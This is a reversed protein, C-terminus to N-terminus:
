SAAAPAPLLEGVLEVFADRDDPRKAIAAVSSRLEEVDEAALRMRIALARLFGTRRESPEDNVAALWEATAYALRIDDPSLVDFDLESFPLPGDAIAAFAGSGRPRLALLEAVVRGREVEAKVLEGDSWMTAVLIEFIVAGADPNVRCTPEPRLDLRKSPSSAIEVPESGTTRNTTQPVGQENDM